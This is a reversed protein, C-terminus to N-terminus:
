FNKLMKKGIRGLFVCQMQQLGYHWLTVKPPRKAGLKNVSNIQNILYTFQISTFIDYATQRAANKRKSTIRCAMVEGLSHLTCQTSWTKNM